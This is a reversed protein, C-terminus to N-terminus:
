YLHILEKIQSPQFGQNCSLKVGNPFIVELGTITDRHNSVTVPIFDPEPKIQKQKAFHQEKALQTKWYKFKYYNIGEAKCFEKQNLGSGEWRSIFGYMETKLKENSRM